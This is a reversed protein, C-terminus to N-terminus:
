HSLVCSIIRESGTQDFRRDAENKYRFRKCRDRACGDGRLGYESSRGGGPRELSYPSNGNKTSPKKAFFNRAVKIENKLSFILHRKAGICDFNLGESAGQVADLQTGGGHRL